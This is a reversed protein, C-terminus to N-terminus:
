IWKFITNKSICRCAQADWRYDMKVTFFHVLSNRSSRSPCLLMLLTYELVLSRGKEKNSFFYFKGGLQKIKWTHNWLHLLYCLKCTEPWQRLHVTLLTVVGQCLCLSWNRWLETTLFPVLDCKTSRVNTNPTRYNVHKLLFCKGRCLIGVIFWHSMKHMAESIYCQFNVCPFTISENCRNRSYKKKYKKKTVM